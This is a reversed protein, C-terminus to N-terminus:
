GTDAPAEPGLRRDNAGHLTFITQSTVSPAPGFSHRPSGSGPPFASLGALQCNALSGTDTGFEGIWVPAIGRSLLYGGAHEMHTFFAPQSQNAPHYWPYGHLSYAVKGPRALRM